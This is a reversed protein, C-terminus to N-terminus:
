ELWRRASTLHYFSGTVVLTGSPRLSRLWRLAKRMGRFERVECRPVERRVVASMEEPSLARPNGLDPLAVADGPRLDLARVFGAQDKDEMMALCLRLPRRTLAQLTATLKRAALPCHAGDLIMPPRRRVVEFRGTLPWGFEEPSHPSDSELGLADLAAWATELAPAVALTAHPVRVRLENCGGRRRRLILEQGALSHSVVEARWRRSVDIMPSGIERARSRIAEVAARPVRRPQPALLNPVGPKLIGAKERANAAPDSGLIRTHDVGLATIITLAPDVVNTADLRGGLGTELVAWDVGREAFHLLATATLCEFYTRLTARDTGGDGSGKGRSPPLSSRDLAALVRACLRAFAPRSIWRGDVVIRERLDDVHPSRYLGVRLGRHALAEALFTATTGKGRTGAIHIIRLRRQPAGLTDLFRRFAELHFAQTGGVRPPHREYNILRNLRELAQRYTLPSHAM